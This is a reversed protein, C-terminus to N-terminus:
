TFDIKIEFILYDTRDKYEISKSTNEFIEFVIDINYM